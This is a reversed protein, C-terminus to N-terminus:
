NRAAFVRIPYGVEKERNHIDMAENRAVEFEQYAENWDAIVREAEARLAEVVRSNRDTDEVATKASEIFVQYDQVIEKLRAVRSSEEGDPEEVVDNLVGEITGEAEAVRDILAEHAEQLDGVTRALSKRRSSPRHDDDDTRKRKLSPVNALVGDRDGTDIPSRSPATSTLPPLAVIAEEEAKIQELLKNQLTIKRELDDMRSTASQIKGQMWEIERPTAARPDPAAPAPALAANTKSVSRDLALSQSVIAEFALQHQVLNMTAYTVRSNIQAQAEQPFSEFGVRNKFSEALKVEEQWEMVESRAKM